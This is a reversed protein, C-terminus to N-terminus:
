WASEPTKENRSNYTLTESADGFTATATLNVCQEIPVNDPDASCQGATIIYFENETIVDEGTEALNLDAILDITYTNNNTFFRRQLQMVELLKVKADAHRTSVIHRQYSPYAISALIAVIAVVILLETLTFGKYGQHKLTINSQSILKM